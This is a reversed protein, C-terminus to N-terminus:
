KARPSLFGFESVSVHSYVAAYMALHPQWMVAVAGFLWTNKVLFGFALLMYLIAIYKSNLSTLVLFLFADM